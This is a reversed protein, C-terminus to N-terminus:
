ATNVCTSATNEAAEEEISYSELLDILEQRSHVDTKQYIGYIHAKVTHNTVVLEEEIKATSYGKALLILM